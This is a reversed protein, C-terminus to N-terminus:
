SVGDGSYVWETPYWASCSLILRSGKKLNDGVVLDKTDLNGMDVRVSWLGTGENVDYEQYMHTTVTDWLPSFSSASPFCLATLFVIVVCIHVRTKRPSQEMKNIGNM